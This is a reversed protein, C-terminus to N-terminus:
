SNWQHELITTALHLTLPNHAPDDGLHWAGSVRGREKYWTLCLFGGIEEPLVLVGMSEDYGRLVIGEEAMLQRLRNLTACNWNDTSFRWSMFACRRPESAGSVCAPCPTQSANRLELTKDWGDVM